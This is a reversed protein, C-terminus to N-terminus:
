SESSQPTPGEIPGDVKPTVEAQQAPQDLLETEAGVVVPEDDAEIDTSSAYSEEIQQGFAGPPGGPRSPSTALEPFKDHGHFYLVVTNLFAIIPVIFLAGVIGAIYTAGAVALLVAVPHLSVAHGMLFPQLVNGEIQQVALVVILMLVATSMGHAVLAVLVAVTGTVLAGVIPVFSGLFVLVGLPLYLPVGLLWAGVGIGIADVFAVLIQTRAYGRLTIWGRIAAEHTRERASVPLLRVCWLWIRRGEMLFFFLCFIAILAGSLIQGVSTTVTMAGSAILSTHDQMQSVVQSRAEQIQEQGIQLPGDALWTMFTNFGDVASEAIDSFGDILSQGAFILLGLIAALTGVVTTIAALARPFHFYRRLFQNVPELLVAILTAVLVPVVVIQMWYMAYVLMALAIVIVVTRWAWEATARVSWPVVADPDDDAKAAFSVFEEDPHRNANGAQRLREASEAM